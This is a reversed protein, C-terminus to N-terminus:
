GALTVSLAPHDTTGAMDIVTRWSPGGAGAVAVHQLGGDSGDAYASPLCTSLSGLNFDGGVVVRGPFAAAM